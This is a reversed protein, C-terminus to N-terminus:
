DAFDLSMFLRPQGALPVPSRHVLGHGSNNYWGDGKILAVDGSQLQEPETVPQGTLAALPQTHWQTAVGCWSTVLRCPIHDVHFRPCMPKDLLALRLGACKLEFLCCFMDVLLQVDEILAARGPHDPLTRTLLEPVEEVTLISKLQLNLPPQATLAATYTQIDDSLARQWGAMNCDPEYIRTFVEPQSSFHQTRTLTDVPTIANM